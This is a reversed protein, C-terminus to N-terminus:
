NNVEEHMDNELSEYFEDLAQEYEDYKELDIDPYDKEFEAFPKIARVGKFCDFSAESMTYTNDYKKGDIWRRLGSWKNIIEDYEESEGQYKSVSAIVTALDQDTYLTGDMIISEDNIYPIAEEYGYIAKCGAADCLIGDYRCFPEDEIFEIKHESM